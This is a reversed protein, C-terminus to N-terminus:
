REAWPTLSLKGLAKANLSQLSNALEILWNSAPAM